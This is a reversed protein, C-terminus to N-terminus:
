FITRIYVNEEIKYICPNFYEATDDFNLRLVQTHFNGCDTTYVTRNVFDTVRQMFAMQLDEVSFTNLKCNICNINGEMTAQGLLPLIAIICLFFNM